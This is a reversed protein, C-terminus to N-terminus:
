ANGSSRYGDMSREVPLLISFATGEGETSRVEMRGGHKKIISYSVSLGLGTGEGEKKTTFFPDFIRGLYEQPIGEGTDTVVIRVENRVQELSVRLEGGEPMAQVSNVFLNVLVQQLGGKDLRLRPLPEQFAKSFQIKHIKFENSFLRATKDVVECLDVEELRPHNARSFELLNKVTDSAREAQDLAEQYLQMREGENMSSHDEILSELTLSINNIPNNIEHAIGSTLTGVAAIKRSQVLQEQRSELESMMRNIAAILRFIENKENGFPSIMGHFVGQAIAESERTIRALPRVIREGIFNIVFALLVVLIILNWLPFSAMSQLLQHIVRRENRVLQDAFVLLDQGSRRISAQSDLWEMDKGSAGRLGEMLSSYGDVYRLFQDYNDKGIAHILNNRERFLLLNLRNTYSINEEIDHDSHFLFFNKEYRRMELITSNLEESIEFFQMSSILNHFNRYNMAILAAMFVFCVSFAVVVQGRITSPVVRM